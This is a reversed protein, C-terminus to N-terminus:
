EHTPQFIDRYLVRPLFSFFRLSLTNACIVRVTYEVYLLTYKRNTLRDSRGLKLM